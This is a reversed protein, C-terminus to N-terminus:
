FIFCRFQSLGLCGSCYHSQKIFWLPATMHFNEPVSHATLSCASAKLKFYAVMFPYLVSLIINHTLSEAQNGFPRWTLLTDSKYM